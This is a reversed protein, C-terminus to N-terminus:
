GRLMWDMARAAEVDAFGGAVADPVSAAKAVTRWLASAPVRRDNATTGDAIPAGTALDPMHYVYAQGDADAGGPRIDGYYGGRIMGGALIAGNKGEDGSSGAAPSRGGDNTYMVILTRDYIGAMKLSEILRVLPVVTTLNQDRMQPETREGHIDGIDVELAISRVVDNSVLKFAYAAMEWLEIEQRGYRGPMGASWYAREAESLTLDFIRPEGHVRLRADDLQTEHDLWVSDAFRGGALTRQDMERLYRHILDAEEATPVINFDEISRPFADFLAGVSQVRDLEAGPLGGGFHYMGGHRQTGKIVLGNRLGPTLQKQWYNHLSAITPTSSYFAGEGNDQGPESEWMAIRGTASDRTRGPSRVPNAAEHGHVPGDTLECLELMAITDVHPRLDISQPTLFVDPAAEVLQSQDFFLACRRGNEGRILSSSRALGPAVFVHGWDFQDRMNFEILYSPMDPDLARARGGLRDILGPGLATAGAAAAAYRMFSRRDIRM